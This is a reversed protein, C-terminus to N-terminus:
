VVTWGKNTAIEIAAPGILDKQMESLTLTLSDETGTLDKLNNIIDIISTSLLSGCSSLNLSFATDKALKLIKMTRCGAFVDPSAVEQLSSLDLEQVSTGRGAGFDGNEFLNATTIRIVGSLDLYVADRPLWNTSAISTIKPMSLVFCSLGSMNPLAGTLEPFLATHTYVEAFLTGSNSVTTLKEFNLVRENVNTHMFGVANNSTVNVATINRILNEELLNTFCSLGSITREQQQIPDIYLYRIHKPSVKWYNNNPYVQGGVIYPIELYVIPSSTGEFSSDYYKTRVTTLDPMSNAKIVANVNNAKLELNKIKSKQYYEPYVNPDNPNILNYGNLQTYTRVMGSGVHAPIYDSIIISQTSHPLGIDVSNSYNTTMRSTGVYELVPAEIFDLNGIDSNYSYPTMYFACWRYHENTDPDVIDKTSDWTHTIDAGNRTLKYISGDSFEIARVINNNMIGLYITNDSRVLGNNPQTSSIIVSTQTADLLLVGQIVVTSGDVVTTDKTKLINEINPWSSPRRWVMPDTEPTLMSFDDVTVIHNSQLDMSNVVYAIEDLSANKDINQDHGILANVCAQRGHEISNLVNLLKSAM